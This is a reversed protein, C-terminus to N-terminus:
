RRKGNNERHLVAALTFVVPSNWYITVENLSYCRMDDAFCRMPPTGEAILERAAPDNLNRNPGGSVLGPICEDIGDAESPRYHPHSCAYEGTGTVYSIGAANRGLLVHIQDLAADGFFGKGTFMEALSLKMAHHMLVMNSGWYYEFDNIAAGFANKEAIDLFWYAEGIIKDKLECSIDENKGNRDCLVYAMTGLGGILAYGLSTKAYDLKTLYPSHYLEEFRDSFRKEGTLAFMEAAAWYRNDIDSEESYSGTNCGEPNEFGILEKNRELWEYAKVAADRLKRSFGSDYKEYIGAGLACVACLDATASSSVPFVYLQEKDDEPMIFPAHLMTTAKHYAGGDSRQMKLLWELEYRCEGLIDPVGSGSEPIDADFGDFADPFLKYAYLLQACACAGTTVYRGFDGADHWGGTIDISGGEGVIEAKGCHCKGHAFIGAHKKDLGCGCRFFYFGRITDRFLGDYVDNGIRFLASTRGDATIRYSGAETLQSFDAKYTDYGSLSDTGSHETRGTFRISGDEATVSFTEAPFSLVATKPSHPLYGAQDVFIEFHPSAATDTM